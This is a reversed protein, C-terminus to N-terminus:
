QSLKEETEKWLDANKPFKEKIQAVLEKAEEVKAISVLGEVLSKMTTFNPVWNKEMCEKSIQLATEYDGGQCLFYILTFYCGTDPKGGQTVMTKFLKKADELKGERCFGHILTAYTTSNPHTGKERMGDLLAKAEFSRGLKCLSQIRINYTSLGPTIGHEKMLNLVKGVDETKQEKYFGAIMNNFTTTNPKCNKRGMESVVSYGSSSEGAECFAKIVTNYTDTDPEINYTSPFDTFIRKVENHKKALICSFLLSNLSKVTRQIGLQEMQEFTTIANQIMGAQGYLVISHSVFRENQLDPRKKLEELFVRIGEFYNSESLKSVAISFCIRDLHSEPTLSAARCIDLIKEPNKESKLLSLAARSKQKSSLITKSDPSLISSPSSSYKRLQLISRSRLSSFLAM